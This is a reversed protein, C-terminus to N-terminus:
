VVLTIHLCGVDPRISAVHKDFYELPIDHSHGEYLLDPFPLCEEDADLSYLIVNCCIFLRLQSLLLQEM